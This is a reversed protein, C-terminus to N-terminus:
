RNALIKALSQGGRISTLKGPKKLEIWTNCNDILYQQTVEFGLSECLARLMGGPTYCMFCSEALQVGGWLDCDNFTFALVGGPKLKQFIEILYLRIIEFPKYHFFNVAVCFGFQGDPLDRLVRGDSDQEKLLYHRVRRQYESPFQKMCPDLLSSRIDALYLPDSGVMYTLWDGYGPRIVLTAHHWDSHIAMRSGLYQRVADSLAPRRDLIIKDPDHIMDEDHLRYSNAFYDAHFAEIMHQIESRTNIVNDKFSNIKDIADQYDQELSELCVPLQPQGEKVIRLLEGMERQCITAADPLPKEDITNLLRVLTSLKM